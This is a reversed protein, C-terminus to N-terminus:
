NQLKNWRELIDLDVSGDEKKPLIARILGTNNYTINGLQEM